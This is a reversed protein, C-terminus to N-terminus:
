LGLFEGFDVAQKSKIIVFSKLFGLGKPENCILEAEDSSNVNRVAERLSMGIPKDKTPRGERFWKFSIEIAAAKVRQGTSVGPLYSGDKAKFQVYYIRQGKRKSVSFPLHTM